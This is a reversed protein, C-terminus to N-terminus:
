DYLDAVKMDEPVDKTPPGLDLAPPVEDPALDDKEPQLNDLMSESMKDKHYEWAYEPESKSRMFVYGLVTM